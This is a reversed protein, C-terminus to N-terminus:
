PARYLTRWRTLPLGVLAGTLAGAGASGVTFGLVNGFGHDCHDCTLLVALGVGLSLGAGIAAGEWMINGRGEIVRADRLGLRPEVGPGTTLLSDPTLTPYPVMVVGRTTRM